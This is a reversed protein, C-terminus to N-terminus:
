LHWPSGACGCCGVAVVQFRNRRTGSISRRGAVGAHTRAHLRGHDCVSCLLLRRCDDRNSLLCPRSGTRSDHCLVGGYSGVVSRGNTGRHAENSSQSIVISNLLGGAAHVVLWGGSVIGELAQYIKAESSPNEWSRRTTGSRSGCPFGPARSAMRDIRAAAISTTFCSPELRPLQLRSARCRGIRCHWVLTASSLVARPRMCLHSSRTTPNLRRVSSEPRPAVPRSTEASNSRSAM